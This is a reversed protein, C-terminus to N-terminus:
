HHNICDKGTCTVTVTVQPPATEIGVCINGSLQLGPDCRIVPPFQQLCTLGNDYGQACFTEEPLVQHSLCIQGQMQTGAPCDYQFPANRVVFCAEVPGGNSCRTTTPFYNKQMCGSGTDTFGAPCTRDSIYAAGEKRECTQKIVNVKANTVPVTMGGKGALGRLGAMGGKGHQPPTCDYVTSRWCGGKAAEEFGPPCFQNVNYPALDVTACQPGERNGIECIEILPLQENAECGSITETFGFPCFRNAPQQLTSVCQKGQLVTGPPCRAQKETEIICVDGQLHGQQCLTVPPATLQRECTKGNLNYGAPCSYVPETQQRPAISVAGKGGQYFSQAAASGILALLFSTRM